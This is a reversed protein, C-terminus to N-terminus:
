NTSSYKSLTQGTSTPYLSISTWTGTYTISADQGYKRSAPPLALWVLSAQLANLFTTDTAGDHRYDNYGNLMTYTSGATVVTPFVASAATDQMEYASVGRNAITWGTMGALLSVYAQAPLYSSGVYGYTISDGFANAGSSAASVPGVSTATGMVANNPTAVTGGSVTWGGAAPTAWGLQCDTTVVTLCTLVQNATPAAVPYDVSGSYGSTPGNWVQDHVASSDTIHIASRVGTGVGSSISGGANMNGAPSLNGSSDLTSAANPTQIHSPDFDTVIANAAPSGNFNVSGGSPTAATYCPNPASLATWEVAQGETPSFGTCFPVSEIGQVTGVVSGSGSAALDGTIATIGGAPYTIATATQATVLGKGNTTVRCVHTADGCVGSGSNVTALTFLQNGTGPGATGDGHLQNIGSGGSGCPFGSDSLFPPQASLVACDGSTFGLPLLAFPFIGNSNWLLGPSNYDQNDLRITGTAPVVPAVGAPPYNSGAAPSADTYSTAPTNLAVACASCQGSFGPQAFRMVDYGTARSAPPWSITVSNGGGLAAIGATQTAVAPSFQCVSGAVYRTCVYYYIPSQGFAGAYSANAQVPPPVGTAVTVNTTQAQTFFPFLLLLLFRFRKM